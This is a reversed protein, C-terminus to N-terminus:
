FKNFRLDFDRWLDMREKFPHNGVTLDHDIDLFELDDTVQPWIVDQLLRERRPTPNGTRGFNIMLRLLRAQVIYAHDNRPVPTRFRNFRNLYM